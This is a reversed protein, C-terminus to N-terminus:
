KNNEKYEEETYLLDFTKLLDDWSDPIVVYSNTILAEKNNILTDLLKKNYTNLAVYESLFHNIYIIYTRAYYYDNKTKLYNDINKVSEEANSSKFDSDIKSKITETDDEAESMATEFVEKQSNLLSIQETAKEYRYELQDIVAELLKSKDTSGDLLSKINTQLVNRYESTIEMNSSILWEVTESSDMLKNVSFIDSYVDAPIDTRQSYRMWLNTSIAVWTKWIKTSNVKQFNAQNNASSVITKESVASIYNNWIDFVGVIIATLIFIKLAFSKIQRSM